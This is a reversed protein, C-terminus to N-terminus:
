RIDRWNLVSPPGIAALMSTEVASAATVVGMTSASVAADNRQSGAVAEEPLSREIRAREEPPLKAANPANPPLGVEVVTTSANEWLGARANPMAASATGAIGIACAMTVLLAIRM